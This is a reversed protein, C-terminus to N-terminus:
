TNHNGNKLYKSVFYFVISWFILAGFILWYYPDRVINGISRHTHFIRSFLFTFIVFEIVSTILARWIKKLPIVEKGLAKFIDLIWYM